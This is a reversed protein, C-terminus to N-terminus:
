LMMSVDNRRPRRIIARYLGRVHHAKQGMPVMVCIIHRSRHLFFYRAARGKGSPPLIRGQTKRRGPRPPVARRREDGVSSRCFARVWVSKMFCGPPLRRGRRGSPQKGGRRFKGRRYGPWASFPLTCAFAKRTGAVDYFLRRSKGKQVNRGAQAASGALRQM